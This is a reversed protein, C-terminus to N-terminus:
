EDRAKRHTFRRTRTHGTGAFRSAGRMAWSKALSSARVRAGNRVDGGAAFAGIVARLRELRRERLGLDSLHDLTNVLYDLNTGATGRARRVIRAEDALALRGAYSPHAREAVYTVAVIPPRDARSFTLPVRVERYVGYILERKRIYALTAHRQAARVRFAVGDCVGGSDLGLVLGPRRESGRYHFSFVCLARHYGELRAPVAEAFEFGPKWMLSGYGFVWLDDAESSM